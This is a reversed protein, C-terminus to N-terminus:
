AKLERIENRAAQREAIIEPKLKDYDPLVVYDTDRLFQKLEEIREQKAQEALEEPTPEPEPEPTPEPEPEPTPEPEPEPAPIEEVVWADGTWRAFQGESFSPPATEVCGAPILWVGDELPSPDAQLAGILVGNEDTQYVIM